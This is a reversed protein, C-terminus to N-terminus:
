IYQQFYSFWADKWSSIVKLDLFLYVHVLITDWIQGFVAKLNQLFICSDGYECVLNVYVSKKIKREYAFLCSQFSFSVFVVGKSCYKLAKELYKFRQRSNKTM